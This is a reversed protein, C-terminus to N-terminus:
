ENDLPRRGRVATDWTPLARVDVLGAEDFWPIVEDPNHIGHYCPSYGDFTDLIDNEVGLGQNSFPFAHAIFQVFPNEMHKLAYPVFVKCWSYYWKSPIRSTFPIWANRKIYDGQNPYVWIAAEGGPKLLPILGQFFIKTNPTHHLVGISIIFDFTNPAFPLNGIDAQAILVNSRDAFNKHSAEVAYSLDVGVVKAGWKSLVDTFRGAGVGADLILKGKVQEPTLETKLRFIEESSGSGTISDLQTQNHTNWEFSFSSVYNDSTVFRPIGRVIPWAKGTDIAILHDGDQKLKSGSEPCRFIDYSLDNDATDSQVQTDPPMVQVPKTTTQTM